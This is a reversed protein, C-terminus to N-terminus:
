SHHAHSVIVRGLPADAVTFDLFVRPLSPMARPPNISTFSSVLQNSPPPGSNQHLCTSNTGDPVVIRRTHHLRANHYRARLDSWRPFLSISLLARGQGRVPSSLRLRTWCYRSTSTTLQQHAARLVALRRRLRTLMSAGFLLLKLRLGSGSLMWMVDSRRVSVGRTLLEGTIGAVSIAAASQMSARLQLNCSADRDGRGKRGEEGRRRREGCEERRGKGERQAEDGRESSTASYVRVMPRSIMEMWAPWAPLWLAYNLVNTSASMLQVLPTYECPANHARPIKPQVWKKFARRDVRIRDPERVGERREAKRDEGEM